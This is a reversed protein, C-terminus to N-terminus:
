STAVPVAAAVRRAGVVPDQAQRDSPRDPRDVSTGHSRGDQRGVARQGLALLRPLPDALPLGRQARRRRRGLRGARRRPVREAPEAAQDGVDHALGVAVPHEPEGGLGGEEGDEGQERRQQRGRGDEALESREDTLAGGGPDLAGHEVEEVAHEGVGGVADISVTRPSNSLLPLASVSAVSSASTETDVTKAVTMLVTVM